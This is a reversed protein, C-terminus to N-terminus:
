RGDQTPEFLHPAFRKLEVILPSADGNAMYPSIQILRDYGFVKFYWSFLPFGSLAPDRLVLNIVGYPNAEIRVTNVWVTRIRYPSCHYEIGAPSTIIRNFAAEYLSIAGLGFFFGLLCVIGWLSSTANKYVVLPFIPILFCAIGSVLFFLRWNPSLHHITQQKDLM